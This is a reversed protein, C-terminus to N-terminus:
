EFTQIFTNGDFSYVCKCQINVKLTENEPQIDPANNNIDRNNLCNCTTQFYDTFYLWNIKKSNEDFYMQAESDNLTFFLNFKLDIKNNKFSVLKAYYNYSIVGTKSSGILLYHNESQNKITYILQYIENVENYIIESKRFNDSLITNDFESYFSLSTLNDNAYGCKSNFSLNHFKGDDSSSHIIQHKSFLNQIIPKSFEQHRCLQFLKEKIKEQYIEIAIYNKISDGLILKETSSNYNYHSYETASIGLLNTRYNIEGLPSLSYYVEFLNDIESCLNDVSNRKQAIIDLNCYILYIFLIQKITNSFSTKSRIM